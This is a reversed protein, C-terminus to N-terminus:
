VNNFKYYMNPATFTPLQIIMLVGLNDKVTQELM